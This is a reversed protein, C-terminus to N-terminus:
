WDASRTLQTPATPKPVALMATRLGAQLSGIGLRTDRRHSQWLTQWGAALSDELPKM